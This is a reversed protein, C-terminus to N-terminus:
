PSLGVRRRKIRTFLTSPRVFSPHNSDDCGRIHLGSQRLSIFVHSRQDHTWHNEVCNKRWEIHWPHPYRPTCVRFSLGLIPEYRLFLNRQICSTKRRFNSEDALKLLVESGANFVSSLCVPTPQSMPLGNATHFCERGSVRNERLLMYLPIAFKPGYREEEPSGM